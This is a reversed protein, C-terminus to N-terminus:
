GQSVDLTADFRGDGILEVIEEGLKRVGRTFPEHEAFSAFGSGDGDFFIVVVGNLGYRRALARLDRQMPTESSPTTESQELGM